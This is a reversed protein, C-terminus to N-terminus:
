EELHLWDLKPGEEKFWKRVKKMVKSVQKEEKAAAAADDDDDDDNDEDELRPSKSM